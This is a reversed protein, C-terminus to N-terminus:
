SRINISPWAAKLYMCMSWITLSAATYLLAYGSIVTLSSMPDKKTSLLLLVIAGMQAAAKFKGVHSVAVSARKGLEAMWERLASVIIERSVIIAAPLTLWPSGHKGVLLVLAIAVILKDAVPDFFEGFPSTQQLRRALYGDIFDTFAAFFFLLACVVHASEMPLFFVIVFIPMMIIRIVTFTNPWNM